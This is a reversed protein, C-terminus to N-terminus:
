GGGGVWLRAAVESATLGRIRVLKTRGTQGRVIEVRSRGCGLAGALVDRVAENAEGDVPAATVRVRVVEPGMMEVGDRGARTRVEVTLRAEGNSEGM